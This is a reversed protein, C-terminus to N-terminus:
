SMEFGEKYVQVTKISPSYIMNKCQLIGSFGSLAPLLILVSLLVSYFSFSRATIM